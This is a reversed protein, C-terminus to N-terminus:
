ATGHLVLALFYHYTAPERMAAADSLIESEPHHSVAGATYLKDLVASALTLLGLALRHNNSQLTNTGLADNAHSTTAPTTRSLGSAIRLSAIAVPAISISTCDSSSSLM